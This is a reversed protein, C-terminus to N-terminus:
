RGMINKKYTELYDICKHVKINSKPFKMKKLIKIVKDIRKIEKWYLFFAKIKM